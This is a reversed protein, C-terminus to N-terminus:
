GVGAAPIDQGSARADALLVRVEERASPEVVGFSM